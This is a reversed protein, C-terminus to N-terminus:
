RGKELDALPITIPKMYGATLKVIERIIPEREEWHARRIADIERPDSPVRARVATLPGDPPNFIARYRDDISTLVEEWGRVLQQVEKPMYSVDITM